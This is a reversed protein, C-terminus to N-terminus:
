REPARRLLDETRAPGDYELRDRLGHFPSEPGDEGCPARTRDREDWQHDALPPNSHDGRSRRVREFRTGDLKERVQREGEGQGDDTVVQMVLRALEGFPQRFAILLKLQLGLLQLRLLQIQFRLVDLDLLSVLELRLEEGVHRVLQTSRQVGDDAKGFEEQFFAPLRERRFM